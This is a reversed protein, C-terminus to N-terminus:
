KFLIITKGRSSILNKEELIKMSRGVTERSCGITLGIDQRTIRIQMGQPHTIASKQQSLHCIIQYIRETVSYFHMECNRNHLNIQKQILKEVIFENLEANAEKLQNFREYSVKAIISNECIKIQSAFDIKYGTIFTEGFIDGSYLFETIMEAGTIDKMINIASGEVIISIETSQNADLTVFSKKKYRHISCHSLLWEIVRKKNKM